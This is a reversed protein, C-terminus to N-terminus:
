NKRRVGLDFVLKATAAAVLVCLVLKSVTGMTGEILLAHAISGAVTVIALSAHATKWTWPHLRLPRRFAALLAAAFVTWMAIVGWVSFPTPSNFVLADIVDPPSTLWLGGVHVVIACVLMAGVWRHLSRSRLKSLGPLYGGILLPQALLLGMAIVGAFGAVIYIPERWALLPSTAAVAFPVIIAHVFVAWILIKVPRSKM